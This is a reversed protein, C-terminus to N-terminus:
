LFDPVHKLLNIIFQNAERSQSTRPPKENISIFCYLWKKIFFHKFDTSITRTKIYFAYRQLSNYMYLM